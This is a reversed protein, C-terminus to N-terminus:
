SPRVEYLSPTVWLLWPPVHCISPHNNKLTDLIPHGLLGPSRQNPSNHCVNEYCVSTPVGSLWLRLHELEPQNALWNRRLHVVAGPAGMPTSWSPNVTLGLKVEAQSTLLETRTEEGKQATLKRQVAPGKDTVDEASLMIRGVSRSRPLSQPIVNRPPLFASMGRQALFYRTCKLHFINLIIIM